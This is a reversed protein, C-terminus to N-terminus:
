LNEGDEPLQPVNEDEKAKDQMMKLPKLGEPTPVMRNDFKEPGTEAFFLGQLHEIEHMIARAAFNSVKLSRVVGGVDQYEIKVKKPREIQLKQNPLSLCGEAGVQVETSVEKIIPNIIVEPVGRLKFVAIKLPQGIQNAALGIGGNKRMCKTMQKVLKKLDPNFKVVELCITKLLIHPYKLIIM